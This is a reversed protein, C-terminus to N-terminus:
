RRGTKASAATRAAQRFASMLVGRCKGLAARYQPTNTNLGKAGFLPGKGSRNPAPINAGNQRLCSAFQVLASRFAKTQAPTITARHPPAGTSGLARRQGTGTPM